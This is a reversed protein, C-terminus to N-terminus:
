DERSELLFLIKVRFNFKRLNVSEIVCEVISFVGGIMAFNKAYSHSTSRMERFIQLKENAMPDAMNPNVSASFLGIAAGVGYGLFIKLKGDSEKELKQAKGKVCAMGSKFVCSEVASEIM